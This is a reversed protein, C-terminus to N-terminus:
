CLRLNAIFNNHKSYAGGFSQKTISLLEEKIELSTTLIPMRGGLKECIRKMAMMSERFPLVAYFPVDQSCLSGRDKKILNMGDVILPATEWNIVDGTTNGRFLPSKLAFPPWFISETAGVQLKDM